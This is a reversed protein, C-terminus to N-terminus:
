AEKLAEVPKKKEKLELIAKKVINYLMPELDKFANSLEERVIKRIVGEDFTTTEVGSVIQEITKSISTKRENAIKKLKEYTEESISVSRFRGAPM